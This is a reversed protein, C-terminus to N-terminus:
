TRAVSSDLTWCSRVRVALAVCLSLGYIVRGRRRQRALLSSFDLGEGSLRPARRTVPRLCEYRRWYREWRAAGGHCAIACSLDGFLPVFVQCCNAVERGRGGGLLDPNTPPWRLLMAGINRIFNRFISNLGDQDSVSPVSPLDGILYMTPPLLLSGPARM